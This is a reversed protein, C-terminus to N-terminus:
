KVPQFKAHKINKEQKLGQQVCRKLLAKLLVLFFQPFYGKISSGSSWLM